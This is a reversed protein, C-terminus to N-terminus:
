IADAEKSLLCYDQPSRISTIGMELIINLSPGVRFHLIFFCWLEHWPTTKRDSKKQTKTKHDKKYLNFFLTFYLQLFKIEQVMKPCMSVLSPDLIQIRFQREKWERIQLRLSAASVMPRAVGFDSCSSAAVCTQLRWNRCELRLDTCWPSFFKPRCMHRVLMSSSSRREENKGLFQLFCFPPIFCQLVM